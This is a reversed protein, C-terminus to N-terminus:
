PKAPELWASRNAEFATIEDEHELTLDVDDLGNILCHRRFEHTAPDDHIVFSSRFGQDDYLECRELDVTL